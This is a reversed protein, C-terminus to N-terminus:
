APHSRGLSRIGKRCATKLKLSKEYRRMVLVTSVGYVFQHNYDAIIVLFCMGAIWLGGTVLKLRRSNKRSSM